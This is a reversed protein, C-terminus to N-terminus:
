AMDQSLHRAEASESTRDVALGRPVQPPYVPAPVPNTRLEENEGGRGKGSVNWWHETSIEM